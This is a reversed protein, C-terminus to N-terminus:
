KKALFESFKGFIPQYNFVKDMLKGTFSIIPANIFSTIVTGLGISHYSTAFINSWDFAKADGFLTFVLIVSLVFSGLDYFFKTKNIPFRYKDAVEAVFLEYIQLPMYTRFFFAVGTATIVDGVFFMIWRIYVATFPAPSLVFLWFDLVYGYIIAVVFCLIYKVKFRRVTFCLIVLLIGQIIYEVMGVSFGSWLKAVAEYIIFAPAAIMSVGLDAKKCLCVGLAVLIVGLVWSVEGMNNFKRNKKNIM